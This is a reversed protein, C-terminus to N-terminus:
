QEFWVLWHVCLSCFRVLLGLARCGDITSQARDAIRWTIAVKTWSDFTCNNWDAVAWRGTLECQEKVVHNESCAFWCRHLAPKSREGCSRDRDDVGSNSGPSRPCSTSPSRDILLRWSTGEVVNRCSSIFPVSLDSWALFVQRLFKKNKFNQRMVMEHNSCQNPQLSLVFLLCWNWQKTVLCIPWTLTEKAETELCALNHRLLRQLPFSRCLM